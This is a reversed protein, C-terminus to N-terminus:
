PTELTIQMELLPPDVLVPVEDASVQHFTAVVAELDPADTTKLPEECSTSFSINVSMLGARLEPETTTEDWGTPELGQIELGLKEDTLDAVLAAVLPHMEKRRAKEGDTRVNKVCVGLIVKLNHRYKSGTRVFRGSIVAVHCSPTRITTIDKGVESTALRKASLRADIAAELLDAM